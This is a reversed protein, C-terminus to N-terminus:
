LPILRLAVSMEYGHMRMSSDQLIILVKVNKDMGQAESGPVFRLAETSRTIYKYSRRIRGEIGRCVLWVYM